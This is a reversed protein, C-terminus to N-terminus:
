NRYDVPLFSVWRGVSTATRALDEAAAAGIVATNKAAAALAAEKAAIATTPQAEAAATTPQFAATWATTVTLQLLEWKAANRM